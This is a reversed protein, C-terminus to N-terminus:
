GSCGIAKAGNPPEQTFAWWCTVAANLFTKGSKQPCAYVITDYPLRGQRDFVFAQRLVARQHPLLRFPRGHETRTVLDDLFAVVDTRYRALRALAPASM